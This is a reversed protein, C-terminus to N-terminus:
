HGAYMGKSDKADSAHVEELFKEIASGLRGYTKGERFRWSDVRWPRERGTSIKKVEVFDGTELDFEFDTSRDMFQIAVSLTKKPKGNKFYGGVGLLHTEQHVHWGAAELEARFYDAYAPLSDLAPIRVDAVYALLAQLSTPSEAERNPSDFAIFLRARIGSAPFNQGALQLAYRTVLGGMSPGIIVPESGERAETYSELWRLSELVVQANVRLDITPNKFLLPAIDYGEDYVERLLGRAGPIPNVGTATDIATNLMEHFEGFTFQEEPL